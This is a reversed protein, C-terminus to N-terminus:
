ASKIGNATNVSTSASSAMRANWLFSAYLFSFSHQLAKLLHQDLFENLDEAVLARAEQEKARRNDLHQDKSVCGGELNIVDWGNHEIEVVALLAAFQEGTKRGTGIEVHLALQRVVRWIPSRMSRPSAM